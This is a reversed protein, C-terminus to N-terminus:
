PRIMRSMFLQHSEDQAVITLQVTVTDVLAANEASVITIEGSYSGPAVGDLNLSVDVASPAVGSNTSLIVMAVIRQCALYTDSDRHKCNDVAQRSAAQPFNPYPHTKRVM